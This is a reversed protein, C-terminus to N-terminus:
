VYDELNKYYKLYPELFSSVKNSPLESDIKNFPKEISKTEKVSKVSPSKTKLESM